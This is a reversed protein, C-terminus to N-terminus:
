IVKEDKLFNRLWAAMPVQGIKAKFKEMETSTLNFSCKQDLPEDTIMPRGLKEATKKEVKKEEKKASVKPKNDKTEPKKAEPKLFGHNVKNFKSLDLSM